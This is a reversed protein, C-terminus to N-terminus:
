DNVYSDIKERIQQHTSLFKEAEALSAPSDENAIDSKTKSLWAQFYDLDKLFRNLDGAEELKAVHEKWMGTLQEWAQRLGRTRQQMVLAEEPHTTAIEESEDELDDLKAQIVALVRERGSLKRQLTRVGTLDMKLDGTRGWIRMKDEMWAVTQRCEIHFTQVCHASNLEDRKTQSKERLSSWKSKLQNQRSVIEETGPHNVHLLQRALQSVVAVRCANANMEHVFKDLRHIMIECDEIDKGPVMTGLMKEKEIIWQEVGDAETSLKYLLLADLLRQKRIDAVECLEKYRSDISSLREVVPSSERDEGLASAQEHLADITSQYNKLEDTVEKYKKLLTQNRDDMLGILHNWMEM